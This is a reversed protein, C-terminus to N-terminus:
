IHILSLTYLNHGIEHGDPGELSISKLERTPMSDTIHNSVNIWIGMPSTYAVTHDAKDSVLAVTIPRRYRKTASETIDTMYGRYARSTFFEEDSIQSKRELIRKRIERHSARM